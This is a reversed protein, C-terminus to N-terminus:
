AVTQEPNKGTAKTAMELIVLKLSRLINVPVVMAIPTIIPSPKAGNAKPAIASM